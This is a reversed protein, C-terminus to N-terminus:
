PLALRQGAKAWIHSIALLVNPLLSLVLVMTALRRRTRVPNPYSLTGVFVLYGDRHLRCHCRPLPQLSHPALSTVGESRQVGRRDGRKGGSHAADPASAPSRRLIRQSGDRVEAGPHRVEHDRAHLAGIRNQWDLGAAEERQRYAEWIAISSYPAANAYALIAGCAGILLSPWLTPASGVM